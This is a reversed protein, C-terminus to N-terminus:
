MLKFKGELVIKRGRLASQSATPQSLHLRGALAVTTMGLERTGWYCLLSRAKVTQKFKGRAVVDGPEMKLLQAVQQVLWDFDYEKAQLRYKRAMSEQADKLLNEVFHKIDLLL